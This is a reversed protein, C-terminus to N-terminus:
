HLCAGVHLETFLAPEVWSPAQAIDCDGMSADQTSQARRSEAVEVGLDDEGANETFNSSPLSDIGVPM